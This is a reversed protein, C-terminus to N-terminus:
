SFLWKDRRYFLLLAWSGGVFNNTSWAQYKRKLNNFYHGM